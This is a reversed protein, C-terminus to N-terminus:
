WHFRGSCKASRNFSWLARLFYNATIATPADSILVIRWRLNWSHNLYFLLLKSQFSEELHTQGNTRCLHMKQTHACSKILCQHNIVWFKCGSCYLADVFKIKEIHHLCTMLHELSNFHTLLGVYPFVSIIGFQGSDGQNQFNGLNFRQHSDAFDLHM